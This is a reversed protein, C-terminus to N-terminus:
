WQWELPFWDYGAGRGQRARLHGIGPFTLHTGMMLQREAALQALIKMRARRAEDTFSDGFMAIDPRTLQVAAHHILDGVYLLSDAGSRVQYVAHGPTHGYAPLATVGPAIEKGGSFFSIRDKLPALDNDIAGFIIKELAADVKKGGFYDKKGLAQDWEKQSIHFKANPFFIKKDGTITGGIHDFHAHSFVVDTIDEPKIGAKALNAPLFGGTPGGNKGGGTDMLVVQGGAKVILSNLHLTLQTTPLFNDRLIREVEAKPADFFGASPSSLFGDSVSVCELSGVKFRYFGAGQLDGSGLDPPTKTTQGNTEFRAPTSVTLGFGAAGLMRLIGRRTLRHSKTKEEGM